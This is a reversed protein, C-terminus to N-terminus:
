RQDLGASLERAASGLPRKPIPGGRRLGWGHKLIAGGRGRM